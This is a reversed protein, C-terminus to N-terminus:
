PGIGYKVINDRGKEIEPIRAIFDAHLVLCLKTGPYRIMDCGAFLREAIDHEIVVGDNSIIYLDNDVVYDIAFDGVSSLPIHKIYINPLKEIFDDPFYETLIDSIHVGEQQKFAELLDPANAPLLIQADVYFGDALCSISLSVGKLTDKCKATVAWEPQSLEAKISQGLNWLFTERSSSKGITPDKDLLMNM